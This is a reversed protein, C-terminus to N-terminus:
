VVGRLHEVEPLYTFLQVGEILELVPDCFGKLQDDTYLIMHASEHLVRPRPARTKHEKTLIRLACM